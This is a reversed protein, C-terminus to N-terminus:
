KIIKLAATNAQNREEDQTDLIAGICLLCEIHERIFIVKIYSFFSDHFGYM